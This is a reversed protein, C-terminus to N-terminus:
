FIPIGFSENMTWIGCVDSDTKLSYGLDGKFLEDRITLKRKQNQYLPEKLTMKPLGQEERKKRQTEVIESAM